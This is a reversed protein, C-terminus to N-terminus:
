TANTDATHTLTSCSGHQGISPSDPSFSITGTSEIGYDNSLDITDDMDDDVERWVDNLERQLHSSSASAAISRSGRVYWGTAQDSGVIMALDDMREIRKGRLREARPHSKLYEEWVEDPATVVMRESDWGFGSAALMDKVATYERKYYRLQNSVNQWRLVINTHKTVAEAAIQYAERKFGNDGKRGLAVQELFIDIMVQNM